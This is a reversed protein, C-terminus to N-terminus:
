VVGVCSLFLWSFVVANNELLDPLIMMMSSSYLVNLKQRSYIILRVIIAIVAAVMKDNIM